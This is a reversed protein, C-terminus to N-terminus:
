QQLARGRPPVFVNAESKPGRVSVKDLTEPRYPDVMFVVASAGQYVNVM